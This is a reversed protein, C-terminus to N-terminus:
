RIRINGEGGMRRATTEVFFSRIDEPRVSDIDFRVTSYPHSSMFYRSSESRETSFLGKHISLKQSQYSGYKDEVVVNGISVYIRAIDVPYTDTDVTSAPKWVSSRGAPHFGDSSHYPYEGKESKRSHQANGRQYLMVGDIATPAGYVDFVKYLPDSFRVIRGVGWAHRVEELFREPNLGRFKSLAQARGQEENLKDTRRKAEAAQQQALRQREQEQAARRQAELQKRAESELSM